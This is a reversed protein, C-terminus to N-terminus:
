RTARGLLRLSGRSIDAACSRHLANVPGTGYRRWRVARRLHAEAADDRDVMVGAAEVVDVAAAMMAIVTDDGALFDVLRADGSQAALARLEAVASRVRRYRVEAATAALQAVVREIGSLRRLLAPLSAAEDGRGLALVVHAIGFRDLTQLLRARIARPLRHDGELFADPSTLDAPETALVGLATVMEDDLAATALLAVLPVTPVGTLTQYQAARRQAVAMPGGPGFGVLDAKNLVTLTPKTAAALAAWDEPKPAEAIVLVDADATSADDTVDVGAAALASAVTGRGVGDRGHVAVRFPADLRRIIPTM